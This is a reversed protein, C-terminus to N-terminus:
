IVTHRDKPNNKKQRITQKGIKRHNGQIVSSSLKMPYIEGFVSRSIYSGMVNLILTENKETQLMLDPNLTRLTLILALLSDIYELSICLLTNM